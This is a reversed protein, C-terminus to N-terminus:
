VRAFIANVKRWAYGKGGYNYTLEEGPYIDRLAFFGPLDEGNFTIMRVRLNPSINDDNILRGFSGDDETADIRCPEICTGM